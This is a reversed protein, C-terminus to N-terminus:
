RPAPQCYSAWSRPGGQSVPRPLGCPLAMYLRLTENVVWSVYPRDRLQEYSIHHGDDGETSTLTDLESATIAFVQANDHFWNTDVNGQSHDLLAQLFGDPAAEEVRKQHSDLAREVDTADRTGRSEEAM